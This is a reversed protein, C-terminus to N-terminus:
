NEQKQQELKEQRAKERRERELNQQKLKEQQKQQRELKELRLKEQKDQRLKEERERELQQQRLREEQELQKQRLAEQAAQQEQKLRKDEEQQKRKEEEQSKRGGRQMDRVLAELRERELRAAEEEQIDYQDWGSEEEADIASEDKEDDDFDSSFVSKIGQITKKVLRSYPGNKNSNSLIRGINADPHKPVTFITLITFAFVGMILIMTTWTAWSSRANAAVHDKVNAAVKSVDEMNQEAVTELEDLTSANQKQITKRIGQTSEKMQKAMMAIAEEIQERQAKQLDQLNMNDGGPPHSSKAPRSPLDDRESEDDEEFEDYYNDGEDSDGGDGGTDTPNGEDAEIEEDSVQSFFLKGVLGKDRGTSVDRERAQDALVHARKCAADVRQSLEMYEKRLLPDSGEDVNENAVTRWLDQCLQARVLLSQWSQHHSNDDDNSESTDTTEDQLVSLDEYREMRYLLRRLALKTSLRDKETVNQDENHQEHEHFSLMASGDGFSDDYSNDYQLFSLGSM